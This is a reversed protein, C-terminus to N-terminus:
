DVWYPNKNEDTPQLDDKGDIMVSSTTESLEIKYKRGETGNTVTLIIDHANLPNIFEKPKKGIKLAENSLVTNEKIFNYMDVPMRYPLIKGVNDPENNDMKIQVICGPCKQRRLENALENKRADKTNKAHLSWYAASVPCYENITAASDIWFDRGVGDNLWHLYKMTISNALDKINPIIRLKAIYEKNDVPHPNFREVKGDTTQNLADIKTSTFDFMDMPDNAPVADVEENQAVTAEENQAVTAEENQAVTAIVGGQTTTIDLPAKDGQDEPSVKKTKAVKKSSSESM